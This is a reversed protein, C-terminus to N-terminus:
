GNTRDTGIGDKRAQPYNRADPQGTPASSHRTFTGGGKAGERTGVAYRGLQPAQSAQWRQWALKDFVALRRTNCRLGVPLPPM